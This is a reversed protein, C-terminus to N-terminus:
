IYQKKWYFVELYEYIRNSYTVSINDLSIVRVGNNDTLIGEFNQHAQLLLAVLLQEAKNDISATLNALDAKYITIKSENQTANTGFLQHFVLNNIIM